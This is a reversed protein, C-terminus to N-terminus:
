LEDKGKLLKTVIDEVREREMMYNILKRMVDYVLAYFVINEKGHLKEHYSIVDKIITIKEDIIM